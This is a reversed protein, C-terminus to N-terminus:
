DRAQLMARAHGATILGDRLDDQFEEPLKLLRLTNSITARDKGVRKSLQEQTYGFELILKQFGEAEEM